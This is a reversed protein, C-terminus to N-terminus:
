QQEQSMLFFSFFINNEGYCMYAFLDMDMVNKLSVAIVISIM